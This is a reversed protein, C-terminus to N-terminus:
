YSIILSMKTGNLEKASSNNLKEEQLAELLNKQNNGEFIKLPLKTLALSVNSAEKTSLANSGLFSIPNLLARIALRKSNGSTFYSNTKRLEEITDPNIEFLMKTLSFGAAVNFEDNSQKNGLFEGLSGLIEHAKKKTDDDADSTHIAKILFEVLDAITKPKEGSEVVQLKNKVFQLKDKVDDKSVFSDPKAYLCVRIIATLAMLRAMCCELNRKPVKVQQLEKWSEKSKKKEECNRDVWKDEDILLLPQSESVQASKNKDLLATRAESLTNTKLNLYTLFLKEKVVEKKKRVVVTAVGDQSDMLRWVCNLCSEFDKLTMGAKILDIFRNDLAHFIDCLGVINNDTNGEMAKTKVLLAEAEELLKSACGNQFKTVTLFELM